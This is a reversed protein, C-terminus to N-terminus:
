FHRTKTAFANCVPTCKMLCDFRNISQPDEYDQDCYYRLFQTYFGRKPNWQVEKCPTVLDSYELILRRLEQPLDFFRFTGQRLAPDYAIGMAKCAAGRALISLHGKRKNHLRIEYDALTNPFDYLPQLISKINNSGSQDIECVLHLKL